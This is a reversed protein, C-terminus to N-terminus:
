AIAPPGDNSYCQREDGPERLERLKSLAENASCQRSSKWKIPEAPTASDGAPPQQAPPGAVRPEDRGSRATSWTAARPRFSSKNNSATDSSCSNETAQTDKLAWDNFSSAM